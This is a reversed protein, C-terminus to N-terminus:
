PRSDRQIKSESTHIDHSTSHKNWHLPWIQTPGPFNWRDQFCMMNLKRTHIFDIGIINENLENIV